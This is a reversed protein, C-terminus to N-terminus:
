QAQNQLSQLYAALAAIDTEGQLLKAMPAMQAGYVDDPHSGRIGRIYHELQRKLYWDQSGALRPSNLERNGAAGPGHCAGCLDAYISAGRKIDGAITPASPTPSLTKVYATVQAIEEASLHKVMAAMQAGHVDEEHAGRIGQKFQEMQRIIYWDEQHAIAPAQLSAIGEGAAGHCAICAVYLQQGKERDAAAQRSDQEAAPTSSGGCASLAFLLLLPLIYQM